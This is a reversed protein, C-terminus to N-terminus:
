DLGLMRCWLCWKKHKWTGTRPDHSFCPHLGCVLVYILLLLFGLGLLAMM